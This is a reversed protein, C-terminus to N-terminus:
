FGFFRAFFRRFGCFRLLNRGFGFVSYFEESAFSQYDETSGRETILTLVYLSYNLKRLNKRPRILTSCM